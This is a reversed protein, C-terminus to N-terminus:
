CKYCKYGYFLKNKFMKFFFIENILNGVTTRKDYIGYRKAFEPLKDEKRDINIFKMYEFNLNLKNQYDVLNDQVQIELEKTRKIKKLVYIIDLLFRQFTRVNM